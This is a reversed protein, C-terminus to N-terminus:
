QKGMKLICKALKEAEKRSVDKRVGMDPMDATGRQSYPNNAAL